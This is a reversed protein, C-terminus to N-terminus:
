PPPQAATDLGRLDYLRRFDEGSAAEDLLVIPPQQYAEQLEAPMRKWWGPDIYVFDYGQSVVQEPDPYAILAGWEPYPDYVDSSARVARGFLTVARSPESDLVQANDPLRNWYASAFRADLGNIFYTLQPQPISILQISFIVMGAFVTVLYGTTIAARVVRRSKKYLFWMSPISLLLWLWLATAPMRTISRDLGYRFFLVFLLNLWAAAGLAATLWDGRQWRRVAYWTAPPALLLVPGFELLLVLLQPPNFLGLDSFHATPIAPPWRLGFGHYNTQAATTGSLIAVQNRIFETVFGGQVASLVATAALVVLWFVLARRQETSQNKRGSLWAILLVCAFGVWLLAFLHEANLALGGLLLVYVGGASATKQRSNNLLLLTVVIM